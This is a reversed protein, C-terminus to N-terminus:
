SSCSLPINKYGEPTDGAFYEFENLEEFPNQAIHLLDEVLSFDGNKALSIAKDLMYNKLVYKPNTQLMKKERSKQSIKEKELRKDYLNLWQDVVIPDMAIDFLQERRGDYRSLTRFFLTYDVGADQLMGILEIVLTKDDDCVLELGLKERMMELYCNIYLSEGYEDLKKQVRKKDILPSLAEGLKTLNWYIINPQEGYAYRGAKDKNNCVFGYEFDDMMSFPGYDLTVGAVSINDTNLVGHCFGVGQWKAVLKASRDVIECFMKYFRDQDDVLTPYSEQIVFEVLSELKNFEKLYYFYEFSGIRIWSSSVRLVMAADVFGDRLIKTDSGIIALARTTPIGLHFIAEGILYERISSGLSTRGDAGNAYITDGAGKLQLNWRNIKGLNVVRGDGLRPIYNGFQYGAYCMSYPKSNELLYNGNFINLFNQDDILDDDINLLDAVKQNISIFYPNDLKQIDSFHYFENDLKLYPNQVILDKIKM